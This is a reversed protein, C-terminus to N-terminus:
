HSKLFTYVKQMYSRLDCFNGDKESSSVNLKVLPEEQVTQDYTETIGQGDVVIMEVSQPQEEEPIFELHSFSKSSTLCVQWALCLIIIGLIYRM